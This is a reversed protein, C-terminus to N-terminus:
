DEVNISAKKYGSAHDADGPVKVRYTGSTSITLRRTYKSGSTGDDQLTTQALTKYSGDAQRRQIQVLNGDHAPKATGSFTVRDGRRPSTDADFIASVNLRVSIAVRVLLTPSKTRPTTQAEVRYNTNRKPRVGAFSYDGSTATTAQAVTVYTGEFPHEDAQLQVATGGGSKLKGSLTTALGFRVPNPNAAITLDTGTPAKPPKKQGTAYVPALLAAAAAVGGVMISTRKM